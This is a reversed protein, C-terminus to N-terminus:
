TWDSVWCLSQKMQKNTRISHCLKAALLNKLIWMDWFYIFIECTLFNLHACPSHYLSTQLSPIPLANDSTFNSCNMWDGSWQYQASDGASFTGAVRRAWNYHSKKKGRWISSMGRTSSMNLCWLIIITCVREWYM